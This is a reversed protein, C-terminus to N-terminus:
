SNGKNRKNSLFPRLMIYVGYFAVMIGLILGVITWMPESNLKSDLGRGALVGLIIFGGIFFGVGM